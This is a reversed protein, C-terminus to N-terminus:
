KALYDLVLKTTAQSNEEMIWHGFAPVIGGTVNAAAFKLEVAMRRRIFFGCRM